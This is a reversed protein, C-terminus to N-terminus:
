CVQLKVHLNDKFESTTIICAGSKDRQLLNLRMEVEPVTIGRTREENGNPIEGNDSSIDFYNKGMAELLFTSIFRFFFNFETNLFVM